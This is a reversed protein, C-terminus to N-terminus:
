TPSDVTLACRGADPHGETGGHPDEIDSRRGLMSTLSESCGHGGSRHGVPKSTLRAPREQLRTPDRYRVLEVLARTPGRHPHDTGVAYVLITTDLVIM